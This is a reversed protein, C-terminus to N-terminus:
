LAEAEQQRLANTEFLHRAHLAYVQMRDWHPHSFGRNEVCLASDYCVQWTTMM